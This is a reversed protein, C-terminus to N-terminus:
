VAKRLRTQRFWQYIEAVQGYSLGLNHISPKIEVKLRRVPAEHVRPLPPLHALAELGFIVQLVDRGMAVSQAAKSHKALLRCAHQYRPVVAVFDGSSLISLLREIGVGYGGVFNIPLLAGERIRFYNFVLTALEIGDCYVDVRPGVLAGNFPAIDFNAITPIEGAPIGARRLATASVADPLFRVRKKLARDRGDGGGGFLAGGFYTATLRSRPIDLADLLRFFQKFTARQLEAFRGNLAPPGASQDLEISSGFAAVHFVRSHFADITDNIRLCRDIGWYSSARDAM